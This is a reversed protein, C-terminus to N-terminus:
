RSPSGTLAGVAIDAMSGTSQRAMVEFQDGVVVDVVASAVGRVNAVEDRAAASRSFHTGNKHLWIQRAGASGSAWDLSAKLQVRSVGAPVTLRTPRGADWYGDTDYVAAGWAVATDTSDPISAESTLRVM